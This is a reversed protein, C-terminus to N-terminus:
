PRASVAHSAAGIRVGACTDRGVGALAAGAHGFVVAPPVGVGTARQHRLGGRTVWTRLMYVGIGATLLWSVSAAIALSHGPFSM